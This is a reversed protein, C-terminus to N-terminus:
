RGLNSTPKPTSNLGAFDSILVKPIAKSIGASTIITPILMKISKQYSIGVLVERHTERVNWAGASSGYERSGMQKGDAINGGTRGAAGWRSGEGEEGEHGVNTMMNM